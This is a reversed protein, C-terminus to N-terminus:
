EAWPPLRKENFAEIGQQASPQRLLDVLSTVAGDMVVEDPLSSCELVHRKVAAIAAPAGAKIEGLTTELQAEAAEINAFSYHVIGLRVAEVGDITVSTVALRRSAAEGIRRVVFPIIQSPIFGAKPEPMGFKTNDLTIAVDACCVLGLGGGAAAGEVLAVVPITLNNVAQLVFGFQRYPEHMPDAEGPRLPPPVQALMKMDGGASFYGGAGRIILARADPTQQVVEAADGIERMMAHTLANRRDPRNLTLHLWPGEQTLTINDYSTM